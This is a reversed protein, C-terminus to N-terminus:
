RKFVLIREVISHKVPKSSYELQTGRSFPLFVWLYKLWKLYPLERWLAIINNSIKM